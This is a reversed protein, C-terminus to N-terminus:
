NSDAFIKLNSIGIFTIDSFGDSMEKIPEEMDAWIVNRMNWQYKMAKIPLHGNSNCYWDHTTITKNTYRDVWTVKVKQGQGVVPKPPAAPTVNSAVANKTKSLVRQEEIRLQEEIDIEKAVSSSDVEAKHQSSTQPVPSVNKYSVPGGLTVVSEEVVGGSM